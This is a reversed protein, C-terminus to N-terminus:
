YNLHPLGALFWYGFTVKGFTGSRIYRESSMRPIQQTRSGVGIPKLEM